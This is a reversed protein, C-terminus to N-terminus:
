KVEDSTRLCNKYMIFRYSTDASSDSCATVVWEKEKQRKEVGPVRCWLPLNSIRDSLIEIAPTDSEASDKQTDGLM